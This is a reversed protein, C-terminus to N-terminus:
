LTVTGSWQGIKRMKQLAGDTKLKETSAYGTNGLGGKNNHVVELERNRRDRGMNGIVLPTVSTM